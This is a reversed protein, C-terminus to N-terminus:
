VLGIILFAGLVSYLLYELVVEPHLSKEFTHHIIGWLFYFVSFSIVVLSVLQKNSAFVLVLVIALAAAILLVLYDLHKKAIQARM